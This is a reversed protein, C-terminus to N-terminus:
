LRLSDFLAATDPEKRMLLDYAAPLQRGFVWTRFAEAFREYPDTGAYGTVDIYPIWMGPAPSTPHTFMWEHLVHGLEHVIVWPEEPIPLVVTPRRKDRPLHEQHMLEAVHALQDYGIGHVSMEHHHLNVFLPSVELLYDPRRALGSLNSPLLSAAHRIAPHQRRSPSRNM